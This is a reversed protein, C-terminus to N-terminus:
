ELEHFSEYANAHTFDDGVLVMVNSDSATGNAIKHIHNIM